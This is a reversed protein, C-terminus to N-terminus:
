KSCLNLAEDLVATTVSYPMLHFCGGGINRAYGAQLCHELVRDKYESVFKKACIQDKDALNDYRSEIARRKDDSYENDEIRPDDMLEIVEVSILRNIFRDHEETLATGFVVRM